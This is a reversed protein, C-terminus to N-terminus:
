GRLLRLAEGPNVWAFRTAAPCTALAELNAAIRAAYRPVVAAGSRLTVVLYPRRRSLADDVVRRFVRPSLSAMATTMETHPRRAVWRNYLRHALPPRVAATTVPLIWIGSRRSPDEMRYDDSSPRYPYTPVGRYDPLPGLAVESPTYFSAPDFGPEPTLDVEVGRKDLTELTRQDMWRDGFRFFSCDHGFATRFASFSLDLCEDIWAGSSFDSVWIGNSEDWRWSHTHLGVVDGARAIREVTGAYADAVWSASGYARQVQPDMRLFWGVRAPGDELGRLRSRFREILSCTAPFGDWVGPRGLEVVRADPEVDICFVIPIDRTM